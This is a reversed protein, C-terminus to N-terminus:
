GASRAAHQRVTTINLFLDITSALEAMTAPKGLYGDMGAALSRARDMATATATLGVVPQHRQQALDNARIARVVELGDMDPLHGDLLVVDFYQRRCEHLAASGTEVVAVEHGLRELIQRVIQQSIADDEVLLIRAVSDQNRVPRNAGEASPLELTFSGTTGRGIRSTFVLRGGLREVIGRSIVLGIGSGDARQTLLRVAQEDIGSGTDVVEFRVNPTGILTKVRLVVSGRATFKLANSLLNGLVQRLRIPDGWVLRTCRSDAESRLEIAKEAAQAAFLTVVEEVLQPLDFSVRTVVTQELSSSPSLVEDVMAALHQSASQLSMVLQTQNPSLPTDMLIALLGLMGSLPTRLEHRLAAVENPQSTMTANMTPPMKPKTM